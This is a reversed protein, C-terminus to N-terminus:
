EENRGKLKDRWEILEEQTYSVSEIAGGDKGTVESRTSFEDKAKRELYWKSVDKDGEVIKDYINNKALLVPNAKLEEKRESFEPYLNCYDYLTSCAINAHICAQTDTYGRSFADELKGILEKTMKTPRGVSNKKTM